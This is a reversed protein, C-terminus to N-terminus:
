KNVIDNIEKTIEDGGLSKWSAVFKDFEDIPAKGSIINLFTKKELDELTAKKKTMLDTAGAFAPVTQRVEQKLLGAAGILWQNANCWAGVDDPKAKWDNIMKVINKTEADASDASAKGDIVDMVARYRATIEHADKGAGMTVPEPRCHTLKYKAGEDVCLKNYWDYRKLQAEENHNICKMIAEPYKFDKKVVVISNIDPYSREHAIGDAAKLVTATFEASPINKKTDQMPWWVGWWADQFIGSTGKQVPEVLKNGDKVMFERDIIGDKYWEALKALALKIEPQISGYVVSGDRGRIWDGPYSDFNNFVFDASCVENKYLNKDIPIPTGKKKEKFVKQINAVDDLTQPESLGVEQLWDLRTWIVPIASEVDSIGPFAFLKGDFSVEKLPNNDLKEMFGRLTPSAYDEWTKSLDQVMGANVLKKLIGMGYPQVYIELIDPIDNAAILLNIKQEYAYDKDSTSWVMKGKVNVNEAYWKAVDNNEWSEGEPWGQDATLFKGTTFEVLEPMKSFPDPKVAQTETTAATTQAQTGQAATTQSGGTEQQGGSCGATLALMAALLLSTLLKVAKKM